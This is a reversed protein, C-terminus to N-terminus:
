ATRELRSRIPALPIDRPSMGAPQLRVDPALSQISVANSSGSVLRGRVAPKVFACRRVHSHHCRIPTFSIPRLSAGDRYLFQRRRSPGPSVDTLFRPKASTSVRGAPRGATVNLILECSASVHVEVGIRASPNPPVCAATSATAPPRIATLGSPRKFASTNPAAPKAIDQLPSVAVGDDVQTALLRRRATDSSFRNLQRRLRPWATLHPSPPLRASKSRHVV